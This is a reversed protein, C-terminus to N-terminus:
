KGPRPKKVKSQLTRLQKRQRHISERLEEMEKEARKAALRSDRKEVMRKIDLWDRRTLWKVDEDFTYRFLRLCRSVLYSRRWGAAKAVKDLMEVTGVPVSVTFSEALKGRRKRPTEFFPSFITKM